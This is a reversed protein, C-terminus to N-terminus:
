PANPACSDGLDIPEGLMVPERQLDIRSLMARTIMLENQETLLLACGLQMRRALDVFRAPGAIMLVTAAVDALVPDPHLVSVAAVGTAPMGTRPDLIHPWRAGSPSERFKNYNGSSFLAERGELEVGALVNSFPDRIAVRWPEGHRNGLAYVDGGLTILANNIGFESFTRAAEEAAIGEAIAGFDLQVAPDDSSVRHGNIHVDDLTPLTDRWRKIETEDPAPSTVPFKSTHFGWMALLGGIAPDFLGDTMTQFPRSRQILMIVSAPAEVAEGRALARNIDVLPGPRWAHWEHDYRTLRQNIGALAQRAQDPQNTIIQFDAEGGFVVLTERLPPPQQCGALALLLAVALMALLQGRRSPVLRRPSTPSLHRKSM